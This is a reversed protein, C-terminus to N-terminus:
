AAVFEEEPHKAAYAEVIAKRWSERRVRMDFHDEAWKRAADGMLIRAPRNEVLEKMAVYAEGPSDVVYGTTTHDVSREYHRAAVVPLGLAAAEMARLDSKGRYWTSTGAPALAIDGLMMAAPYTELAAFPIAIVRDGFEGLEGTFDQGISAFCVHPMETMIRHVMELWPRAGRWHGTAGSWMLTVTEQGNIKGRPPRTLRYRGLDLGNECVWTGANFRGYRSAIFETSAILGDCARLCLEMSELHERQFVSRFDHDSSKRIGHVYDDYEALVVKGAARMRKIVKLWGSGRPQQIVIVDYKDLDPLKTAQEVYGTVLHMSPPAGSVGVWDCGLYLAPLACRYWAVRSNGLGMFLVQLTKDSM